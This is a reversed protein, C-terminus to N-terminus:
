DRIAYDRHDVTADLVTVGAVAILGSILALGSAQWTPRGGKLSVAFATMAGVAFTLGVWTLPLRGRRTRGVFLQEGDSGTM